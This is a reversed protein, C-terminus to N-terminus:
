FASLDTVCVSQLSAPAPDCSLVHGASIGMNQLLGVCNGHLNNTCPRVDHLYAASAEADAHSPDASPSLGGSCRVPRALHCTTGPLAVGRGASSDNRMSGSGGHGGAPQSSVKGHCGARQAPCDGCAEPGMGPTHFDSPAKDEIRVSLVEYGSAQFLRDRLRHLVGPQTCHVLL